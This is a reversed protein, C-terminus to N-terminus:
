RISESTLSMRAPLEYVGPAHQVRLGEFLGPGAWASPQQRDAQSDGTMAAPDLVRTLTGDDLLGKARVLELIGNAFEDARTHFAGIPKELEAILRRSGLVLAVHLATPCADNTSRRRHVHDHPDRHEHRGKEFGM